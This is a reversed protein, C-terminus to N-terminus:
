PGLVIWLTYLMSDMGGRFVMRHVDAIGSNESFGNAM